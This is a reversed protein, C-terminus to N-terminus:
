VVYVYAVAPTRLAPLRASNVTSVRWKNYAYLMKLLFFIEVCITVTKREHKAFDIRVRYSACKERVTTKQLQINGGVPDVSQYTIFTYTRTRTHTHSLSASQAYGPGPHLYNRASVRIRANYINYYATYLIIYYITICKYTYLVNSACLIQPIWFKCLVDLV